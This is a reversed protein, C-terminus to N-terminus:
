EEAETALFAWWPKKVQIFKETEADVQAQVNMRAKFMGFVKSNRQTRVEYNARTQKEASGESM